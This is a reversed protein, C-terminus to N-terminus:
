WPEDLPDPRAIAELVDSIAHAVRRALAASEPAGSRAQVEGEAALAALQAAGLNAAMGKISHMLRSLEED